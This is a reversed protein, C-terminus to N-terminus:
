MTHSVNLNGLNASVTLERPQNALVGLERSLFILM